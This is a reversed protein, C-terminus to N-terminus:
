NRKILTVVDKNILSLGPPSVLATFTFSSTWYVRMSFTEPKYVLALILININGMSLYLSPNGRM